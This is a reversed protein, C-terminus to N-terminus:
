TDYQKNKTYLRFVSKNLVSDNKNNIQSGQAFGVEFIDGMVHFINVKSPLLFFIM